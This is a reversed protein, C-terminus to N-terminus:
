SAVIRNPINDSIVSGFLEREREREREREKKLAHARHNEICKSYEPKLTLYLFKIFQM